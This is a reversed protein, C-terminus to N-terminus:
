RVGNQTVAIIMIVIIIMIPGAQQLTRPALPSMVEALDLCGYIYIYIYIYVHIRTYVYICIYIYIYMYM